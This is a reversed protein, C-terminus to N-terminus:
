LQPKLVVTKLVGGNSMFQVSITNGTEARKMVYAQMQDQMMQTTKNGDIAVIATGARLGAYFAATGEAVEAVTLYGNSRNNSLSFGLTELTSRTATQNQPESQSRKYCSRDLKVHRYSSKGTARHTVTVELEPIMKDISYTCKFLKKSDSISLRLAIPDYITDYAEAMWYDNIKSLGEDIGYREIAKKAEIITQASFATLREEIDTIEPEKPKADEKSKESDSIIAGLILGAALGGLGWAASNDNDYHYHYQTPPNIEIIEREAFAPAAIQLTLTFALFMAFFRMIKKNFHKM